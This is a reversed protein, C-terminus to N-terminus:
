RDLMISIVSEIQENTVGIDLLYNRIRESLTDGGYRSVVKIYGDIAGPDRSGWILGYNSFMYDYYLDEEEVGLLGNLLFAIMGTRDTGIACHFVIPYSSEDAFVTFCNKIQEKHTYLWDGLSSDMPFAHYTVTNGLASKNKGTNEKNEDFRLDIETKIGLDELMVKKGEKTVRVKYSDGTGDNLTACRYILGQKVRGGKNSAWGGCDRFNTVGDVFLNRPGDATISFSKVSSTYGAKPYNATVTWFYETGIELNYLQLTLGDVAYTKADSMDANKSLSVTYSDPKGEQANVSWSLDVPKPYSIELMGIAHETASAYDGSDLYKRQLSTHINFNGGVDYLSFTVIKSASSCASMFSLAMIATLIFALLRKTM